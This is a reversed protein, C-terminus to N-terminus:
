YLYSLIHMIAVMHDESPSHMFQSVVSVVYVIDPRTHFLYILRGM